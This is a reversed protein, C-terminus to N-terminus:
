RIDKTTSTNVKESRTSKQNIEKIITKYDSVITYMWEASVINLIM